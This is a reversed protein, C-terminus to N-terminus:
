RCCWRSAPSATYGAGVLGDAASRCGTMLGCMALTASEVGPLAEAREIVRPYLAPLESEQYRGVSPSIPAWLMQPEFGLPLTALNSFSRLFLGAGVALLLSLAVQAM